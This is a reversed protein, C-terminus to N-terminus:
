NIMFVIMMMRIMESNEYDHDVDDDSDDDDYPM